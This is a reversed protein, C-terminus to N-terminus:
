FMKCVIGAAEEMTLRSMNLILNYHEPTDYEEAGFRRYLTARRKGRTEVVNKAQTPLLDYTEEMFKYRDEKYAVLFIHRVDSRDKLIYQGARGVIVCNGEDALRNIVETLTEVYVNEDIYGRSDGLIRDIYSKPIMSTLVKLLAGGAEKEISEVWNKSVRAKDAIMQILQDNICTYGLRNAVLEGLTKGGAGFLRSITLVSM